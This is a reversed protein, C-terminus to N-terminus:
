YGVWRFCFCFCFLFCMGGGEAYPPVWWLGKIGGGGVGGVTAGSCKLSSVVQGSGSRWDVLHVYGGRGAVALMDGPYPSFASLEMGEAAGRGGGGREVSGRSMSGTSMSSPLDGTVGLSFDLYEQATSKKGGGGGGAKESGKRSRKKGAGAGDGLAFTAGWLGRLHQVTKGAALDHTYFYPRPGAILLSTGAPHFM